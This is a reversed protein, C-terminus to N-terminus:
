DLGAAIREEKLEEATIAFKGKAWEDLKLGQVITWKGNKIQVPFSFIVDKPADYSGDSIVSMSVWEGEKTGLWWDHMHDSVSKAASLASSLKRAAIVAAGRKQIASLFENKIWNDDNIATAVPIEKGDQKVVAHSVDVFQTNSHNGWIICNKVSDCSVGLRKAIFSQARNHDLRTLASFNEKPISPANKMLALANTNAPNGVVVVKVTKKAYKDLAQGQEKFIKVNANLLDKREMGERRPMAGVMLAADIQNFAVEPKHTVVVSKLLRFGCDQLEMELGKLSEVMQELDFLHLIVEQDPGFMDGRAVMGALSYGIQGAAGTLLVRIPESM